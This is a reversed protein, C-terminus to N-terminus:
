SPTTERSAFFKLCNLQRSQRDVYNCPTKRVALIDLAYKMLPTEIFRYIREIFRRVLIKTSLLVNCEDFIRKNILTARLDIQHLRLLM